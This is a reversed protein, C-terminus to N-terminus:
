WRPGQSNGQRSRGRRSDPLRRFWQSMREGSIKFITSYAPEFYLSLGFGDKYPSLVNYKFSVKVKARYAAVRGEDIQM